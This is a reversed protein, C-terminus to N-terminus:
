TVEPGECLPDWDISDTEQGAREERDSCGCLVM